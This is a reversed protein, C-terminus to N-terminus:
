LDAARVERKITLLTASVIAAGIMTKLTGAISGALLENRRYDLSNRLKLLDVNIIANVQKKQEDLSGENLTPANGNNITLLFRRLEETSQSAKIKNRVSSLNSEAQQLQASLQLGSDVWLWGYAIIQLPVVMAFLLVWRGTLWDTAKMIADPSEDEPLFIRALLLILISLLLVPSNSVATDTIKLYWGPNTAAVPISTAMLSLIVLWELVSSLRRLHQIFM